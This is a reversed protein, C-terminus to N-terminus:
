GFTGPRTVMLSRQQESKGGAMYLFDTTRFGNYPAGNLGLPRMDSLSKLGFFYNIFLQSYSACFWHRLKLDTNYWVCTTNTHFDIEQTGTPTSHGGVIAWFEFNSVVRVVGFQVAKDRTLPSQLGTTRSSIALCDLSNCVNDYREFFPSYQMDGSNGWFVLALGTLNSEVDGRGVEWTWTWPPRPGAFSWLPHGWPLSAFPYGKAPAWFVVPWPHIDFLPPTVPPKPRSIMSSHHINSYQSLDFLDDPVSTSTEQFPPVGWNDDM